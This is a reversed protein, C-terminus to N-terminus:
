YQLKREAWWWMALASLLLGGAAVYTTIAPAAERAAGRSAEKLLRWLAGSAAFVVDVNLMAAVGGIVVLVAAAMAVNFLRDIQQEARWRDRRIRQLVSSTFAAPAPPTELGALLTHLRRAAGLAGACSPCSEIHARTGADMPEDNSALPEIRTVVSECDV